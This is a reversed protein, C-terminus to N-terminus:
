IGGKTGTMPPTIITAINRLQRGETNAKTFPEILENIKCVLERVEDYSAYFPTIGFGSGDKITYVNGDKQPNCQQFEKVLGKTFRQFQANYYQGTAEGQDTALEAELDIAIGYVKEDVNRVRNTDVVKILGDDAMKKLHRYLTTQPIQPSIQALEKTTAREQDKIAMLLKHKIPNTLCAMLKENM